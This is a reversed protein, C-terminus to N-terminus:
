TVNRQKKREENTQAVACKLRSFPNSNGNAIRLVGDCLCEITLMPTALIMDVAQQYMGAVNHCNLNSYMHAALIDYMYAYQFMTVEHQAWTQMQM